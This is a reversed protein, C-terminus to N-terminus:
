SNCLWACKIACRSTKALSLQESSCPDHAPPHSTLSPTPIRPPRDDTPTLVPPSNSCASRPQFPNHPPRFLRHPTAVPRLPRHHYHTPRGESLTLHFSLICFISSFACRHGLGGPELWGRKTTILQKCKMPPASRCVYLWLRTALTTRTRHSITTTTTSITPTPDHKRTVDLPSSHTQSLAPELRSFYM